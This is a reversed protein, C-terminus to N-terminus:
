PEGGGPAAQGRRLRVKYVVSPFYAGGMVAWLQHLDAMSMNRLEFALSELGAPFPNDAGAGAASHLPKDHFLGITAALQRLSAEYSQCDFSFLLSLILQLPAAPQQPGGPRQAPLRSLVPEAEVNVLTIYAGHRNNRRSLLQASEVLVEDGGLALRDRLDRRIYALAQDIM